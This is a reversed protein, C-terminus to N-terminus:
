CGIEMLSLGDRRQKEAFGSVAPNTIYDEKRCTIWCDLCFLKVYGREPSEPHQLGVSSEHHPCRTPKNNRSRHRYCQCQDGSPFAFGTLLWKTTNTQTAPM